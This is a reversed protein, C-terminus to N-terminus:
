IFFRICKYYKDALFDFLLICVLLKEIAEALKDAENRLSFSIEIRTEKMEM